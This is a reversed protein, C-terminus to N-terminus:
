YSHSPFLSGKVGSSTLVDIIERLLKPSKDSLTGGAFSRLTVGPVTNDSTSGLRPDRISLDSTCSITESVSDGFKQSPSKRRRLRHPARFALTGCSFDTSARSTRATQRAPQKLLFVSLLALEKISSAARSSCYRVGSLKSATSSNRRRSCLCATIEVISRHNLSIPLLISGDILLGLRRALRAGAQGGLALTIWDLTEAARRTRRAYRLATGPLPETFIRGRCEKSRAPVSSNGRM